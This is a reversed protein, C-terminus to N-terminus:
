DFSDGPAYRGRARLSETIATFIRDGPVPKVLFCDFGARLVEERASDGARASVCVIPVERMHPLARLRRTAELGDMVPMQLDMLIVDFPTDGDECVRVAEAGNRVTTVRHGLDGMLIEMIERSLPEDEVLLVDVARPM